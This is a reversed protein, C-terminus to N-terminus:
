LLQKANKPINHRGNKVWINYNTQKRYPGSIYRLCNATREEVKEKGIGPIISQGYTYVLQTLWGDEGCAALRTDIEAALECVRCFTADNKSNPNKGGFEVLDDPNIGERLQPLHSLLVKCQYISFNSIRLISWEYEIKVKLDDPDSINHYTKLTTNDQM